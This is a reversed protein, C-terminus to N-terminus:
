ELLQAVDRVPQVGGDDAAVAQGDRQLGQRGVGRDGHPERDLEVVPQGLRELHRRVVEDGLAQRVDALVRVRRRGRDVDRAGVAPDDDFWELRYLGRQPRVLREGVPGEDPVCLMQLTSGRFFILEGGPRLLRAAEALWLKPDCWISAGYESFVIDFSSGPLSTREANELLFELGLGFEENMRQATELQAPTVDVGVVRSAGLRKLWAGFYGTGCGLEVIEKGTVEPLARVESEPLSWKGWTIENQAWAERARADTYEKNARTWGERNVAVYDPETM